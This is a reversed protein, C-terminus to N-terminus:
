GKVPQDKWFRIAGKVVRYIVWFWVLFLWAAPAIGYEFVAIAAILVIPVALWFTTILWALHGRLMPDADVEAKKLHAVLVGAAMAANVVLGVLFLTYTVSVIKKLDPDSTTM